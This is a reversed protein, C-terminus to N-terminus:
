GETHPVVLEAFIGKGVRPRLRALLAAPHTSNRGPGLSICLNLLVPDLLQGPADDPAAMCALLGRNPLLLLLTGLLRPRHCWPPRRATMHRRCQECLAGVGARSAQRAQEAHCTFCRRYASTGFATAEATRGACAAHGQWSDLVVRLVSPAGPQWRDVHERGAPIWTRHCTRSCPSPSATHAQDHCESMAARCTVPMRSIQMSLKQFASRLALM